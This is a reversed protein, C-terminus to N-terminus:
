IVQLSIPEKIANRTRNIIEDRLKLQESLSYTQAEKIKLQVEQQSSKHEYDLNQQTLIHQRLLLKLM